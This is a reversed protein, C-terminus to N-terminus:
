YKQEKMIAEHNMPSFHSFHLLELIEEPLLKCFVVM